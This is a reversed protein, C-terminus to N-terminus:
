RNLEIFELHNFKLVLKAANKMHSHITRQSVRERVEDFLFLYARDLWRDTAVIGSITVDPKRTHKGMYDLGWGNYQMTGDRFLRFLQNPRYNEGDAQPPLPLSHHHIVYHDLKM